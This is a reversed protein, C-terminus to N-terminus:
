CCRRAVPFQVRIYSMYMKIDTDHYDIGRLSTTNYTSSSTILVDEVADCVQDLLDTTTDPVYCLIDFLDIRGKSNTVEGSDLRKLVIYPEMSQIHNEGINFIEWGLQKLTNYLYQRATM